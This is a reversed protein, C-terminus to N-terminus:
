HSRLFLPAALIYIISCLAAPNSEEQKSDTPNYPPPVYTSGGSENISEQVKEEQVPEQEEKEQGEDQMGPAEVEENAEDQPETCQLISFQAEKSMYGSKEIRLVFMKKLLEEKGVYTNAAKGQADTKATSILQYSYDAYFLYASVGGIEEGTSNDRVTSYVKMAKCDVEVDLRMTKGSGFDKETLAPHFALAHAVLVVLALLTASKNLM